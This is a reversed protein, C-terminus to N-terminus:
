RAWMRTVLCGEGAYQAATATALDAWLYIGFASALFSTM